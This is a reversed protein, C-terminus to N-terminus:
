FSQGMGIETVGLELCAKYGSFDDTVLKGRWGPQNQTGPLGLFARAHEGGRSDAFDFV